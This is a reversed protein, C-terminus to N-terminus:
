KHNTGKNIQREKKYNIFLHNAHTNPGPWPEFNLAVIAGKIQTYYQRNLIINGIYM